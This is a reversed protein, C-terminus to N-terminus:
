ISTILEITNLNFAHIAPYKAKLTHVIMSRIALILVWKMPDILQYELSYEMYFYYLIITAIM